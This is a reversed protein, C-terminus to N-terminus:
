VRCDECLGADTLEDAEGPPLQLLALVLFLLGARLEDGRHSQEAM